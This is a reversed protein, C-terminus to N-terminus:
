VLTFINSKPKGDINDCETLNNYDSQVLLGARYGHVQAELGGDDINFFLPNGHTMAEQSVRQTLSKQKVGLRFVPQGFFFPKTHFHFTFYVNTATVSIYTAM